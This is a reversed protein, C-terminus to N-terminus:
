KKELRYIFSLIEAIVEYLEEPIEDGLNLRTLVEVIDRNKKIPIDHEAATKVIKQAIEGKGKAIIRPANDEEINYKLAAAKKIDSNQKSKKDSM